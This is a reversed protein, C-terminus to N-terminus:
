PREGTAHSVNPAPYKKTPHLTKCITLHKAASKPRGVLHWYCGGTTIILFTELCQWIDGPTSILAFNGKTSFWQKLPPFYYISDLFLSM